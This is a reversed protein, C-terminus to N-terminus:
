PNYALKFLTADSKHTFGLEIVGIPDSYSGGWASEHKGEVYKREIPFRASHLCFHNIAQIARLKGTSPLPVRMTFVVDSM